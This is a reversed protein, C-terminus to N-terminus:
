QAKVRHRDVGSNEDVATQEGISRDIDGEIRCAALDHDGRVRCAIEVRAGIELCWPIDGILHDGQHHLFLIDLLHLACVNDDCGGKFSNSGVIEGFGFCINCGASCSCSIKQWLYLLDQCSGRDKWSRMDTLLYCEHGQFTNANM